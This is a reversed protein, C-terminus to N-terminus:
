GSEPTSALERRLAHSHRLMEDADVGFLTEYLLPGAHPRELRAPDARRAREERRLLMRVAWGPGLALWTRRQSRYPVFAFAAALAERATLKRRAVPADGPVLDGVRFFKRRRKYANYAPFGWVGGPIARDRAVALTVLHAADHDAHGGEWDLTYARAFSAGSADIWAGLAARARDLSRMLTGDAIRGEADGVFAIRDAALGARRLVATSEADRVAAAVALAGDTLYACWVRNGRRHEYAIRTFAVVEDDQHAFVFLVDEVPQASM